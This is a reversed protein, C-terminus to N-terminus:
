PQDAAHAEALAEDSVTQAGATGVLETLRTKVPGASEPAVLVGVAAKGGQLEAGILDRDGQELGLGKHHLAGLIGGGILGVGLGIPTFMALVLGIGAGGGVTRKGIKDTKIEGKDDLVLVGIAEGDALGSDKVTQAAADAAAEDAFIAWVLMKDSM